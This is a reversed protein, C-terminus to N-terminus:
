LESGVRRSNLQAKVELFELDHKARSAYIGASEDELLNRLLERAEQDRDLKQFSRAIWYTAEPDGEIPMLVRIAELYRGSRVLLKGQRKADASFGPGEREVVEASPLEMKPSEGRARRAITERLDQSLGTTSTEPLRAQSTGRPPIPTTGPAQSSTRPGGVYPPQAGRTSRMEDLMLQLASLEDRLGSLREDRERPEFAPMETAHLIRRLGARDGSEIQRKIGTLEELASVTKSLADVIGGPDDQGRLAVAPIIMMGGTVLSAVYQFKLM